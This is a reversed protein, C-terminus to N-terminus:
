FALHRVVEGSDNPKKRQRTHYQKWSYDLCKVDKLRTITRHHFVCKRIVEAQPIHKLSEGGIVGHYDNLAGGIPEARKGSPCQYPLVGIPRQNEDRVVAVRVDDRVRAVCRTFEPHFYPSHFTPIRHWAQWAELVQQPLEDVKCIELAFKIEDAKAEDAPHVNDFQFSESNVSM